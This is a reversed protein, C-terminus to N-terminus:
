SDIEDEEKVKKYFYASFSNYSEEPEDVLEYSAEDILEVRESYVDLVYWEGMGSEELILYNSPLGEARETETVWVINFTSDSDLAEHNLGKIAMGGYILFGYDNLFQKYEAPFTVSLRNEAYIIDQDTANATIIDLNNKNERIISNAQNYVDM